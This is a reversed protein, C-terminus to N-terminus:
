SRVANVRHRRVTSRLVMALVLVLPLRLLMSLLCWLQPASFSVSRDFRTFAGNLKWAAAGDKRAPSGRVVHSRHTIDFRSRDREFSSLARRALFRTYLKTKAPFFRM